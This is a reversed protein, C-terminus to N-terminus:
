PPDGKQKGGNPTQKPIQEAAICNKPIQKPNWEAANCNKPISV